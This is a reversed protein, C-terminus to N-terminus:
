IQSGPSVPMTRARLERRWVSTKVDAQRLDAGRDAGSQVLMPILHREKSVEGGKPREVNRVATRYRKEANCSCAM